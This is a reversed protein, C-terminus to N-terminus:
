EATFVFQQKLIKSILKVEPETFKDRDGYIKNSFKTDSMEEGADKLGQIVYGNTVRKDKIAKRIQEGVYPITETSM